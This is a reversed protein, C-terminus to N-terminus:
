RTTASPTATSTSDSAGPEVIRFKVPLRMRVRVPEGNQYGPIFHTKRLARVASSDCLPHLSRLVAVESTSGDPEVVFTLILRGQINQEIAEEPYEIHIYYAGLGGVIEPQQEAYELVAQRVKLREIPPATPLITEDVEEPPAEGENEAEVTTEAFAAFQTPQPTGTGPDEPRRQLEIFELREQDLGLDIQWGVAALPVDWPLHFCLAVLLLSMALALEIRVAYSDLLGALQRRLPAIPSHVDMLLGHHIM